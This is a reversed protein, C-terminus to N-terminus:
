GVLHVERQVPAISRSNLETSTSAADLREFTEKLQSRSCKNLLQRELAKYGQSPLQQALYSLITESQEVPISTLCNVVIPLLVEANNGMLTEAFGLSLAQPNIQQISQQTLASLNSNEHCSPEHFHHTIKILPRVIQSGFKPLLQAVQNQVESSEATIFLHLTFGLLQEFDWSVISTWLSDIDAGEVSALNCIATLDAGQLTHQAQLIIRQANSLSHM